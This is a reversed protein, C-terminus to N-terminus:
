GHVSESDYSPGPRQNSTGWKMDIVGKPKPGGIKKAVAKGWIIGEGDSPSPVIDAPGVGIPEEPLGIM